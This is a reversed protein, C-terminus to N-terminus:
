KKEGYIEMTIFRVVVLDVGTERWFKFAKFTCPYWPESKAGTPILCPHKSMYAFGERQYDDDPMLRINEVRPEQILLLTGIRKGGAHFVKDLGEVYAKDRYAKRFMELHRPKWLRRTVTKQRAVFAPWTWGFSLALM